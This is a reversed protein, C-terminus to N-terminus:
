YHLTVFYKGSATSKRTETVVYSLLNCQCDASVVAVDLQGFQFDALSQDLTCYMNRLWFRFYSGAIFNQMHLYM